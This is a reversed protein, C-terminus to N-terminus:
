QVKLTQRGMRILQKIIDFYGVLNRVCQYSDQQPLAMEGYSQVKIRGGKEDTSSAASLNHHIEREM